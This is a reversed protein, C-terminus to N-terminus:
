TGGWLGLGVAVGYLEAGGLDRYTLVLFPGGGAVVETWYRRDRGLRVGVAASAEDAVARVDDAYRVGGLRWALGARALARTPGLPLEVALELPARTAGLGRVGGVGIGGSVAVLAGGRGRLALGLLHADAELHGGDLRGGRLDLGGHYGAGLAGRGRGARLRLGATVGVDGPGGDGPLEGRLDLEVALAQGRRDGRLRGPAPTSDLPQAPGGARADIWGVIEAAVREGAGDPERLPDHYLGDHLRLTRDAAGARAVLERSGAPATLTDATGHVVLLPARLRAPAAWVRAAGDTAARATVAPGTGPDILPDRGLEAVVEARRSFAGHAPAVLPLGPAIAAAVGIVAAQVPPADFALAPAVLVLGALDPGREIAHLCAILGGMSHGYLFLPLGPEQARVLELFARLDALPRDIGDLTIRRGASRGHGRMDFAWVAHGARVLRQALEAYRASHDALGHHIVVVARPAVDRPRWRQAYLELGDGTFTLEAHDVDAPVTARAPPGLRLGPDPRACGAVTALVAALVAALAGPLISRVHHPSSM